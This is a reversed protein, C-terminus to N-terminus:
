KFHGGCTKHTNYTYTHQTYTHKNIVKIVTVLCKAYVAEPLFPKNSMHHWPIWNMTVQGWATPLIRTTGPLPVGESGTLPSLLCPFPSSFSVPFFRYFVEWFQVVLQSWGNFGHVLVPCSINLSHTVYHPHYRSWTPYFLFVRNQESSMLDIQWSEAM